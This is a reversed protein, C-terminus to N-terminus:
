LSFVDRLRHGLEGLFVLDSLDNKSAGGDVTPLLVKVQSRDLSKEPGRGRDIYVDYVLLGSLRRRALRVGVFM